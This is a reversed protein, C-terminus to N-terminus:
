QNLKQEEMIKDIHKCRGRFQHGPCSCSARGNRGITVTYVNENSGTVKFVQERPQTPDATKQELKTNNLEVIREKNIRRIPWNKNTTTIGIENPAYWKERILQGTYTYFEPIYVNIAYRHRNPWLVNKVKITVTEGLKIAIKSM